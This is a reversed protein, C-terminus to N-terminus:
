WEERGRPLRAFTIELSNPDGRGGRREERKAVKKAFRLGDDDDVNEAGRMWQM